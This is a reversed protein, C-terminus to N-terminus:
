IRIASDPTNTISMANIVTPDFAILAANALGTFLRRVSYANGFEQLNKRRVNESKGLSTSSKVKM